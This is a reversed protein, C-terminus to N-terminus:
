RNPAYSFYWGCMVRPIPIVSIGKSNGITNAGTDTPNKWKPICPVQLFTMFVKIEYHQYSDETIELNQSVILYFLKM